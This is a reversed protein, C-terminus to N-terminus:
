ASYSDTIISIDCCYSGIAGDGESGVELSVADGDHLHPVIANYNNDLLLVCAYVCWVPRLADADRATYIGQECM